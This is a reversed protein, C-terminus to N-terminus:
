ESEVHNVEKLVRECIKLEEDTFNNDLNGNNDYKSVYYDSLDSYIIYNKKNYDFTLVIKMDNENFTLPDKM